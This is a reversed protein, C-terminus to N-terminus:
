VACVVARQMVAAFIAGIENKFTGSLDDQASRCMLPLRAAMPSRVRGWAGSLAAAVSIVRGWAGCNGQVRRWAGERAEVHGGRAEMCQWASERAPVQYASTMLEAVDAKAADADM